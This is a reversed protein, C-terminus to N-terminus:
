SMRPKRNRTQPQVGLLASTITGILIMWILNNRQTADSVRLSLLPQFLFVAFLAASALTGIIGSTSGFKMSVFALTGLCVFPILMKAPSSWFVLTLAGAAALCLGVGLSCRYWDKMSPEGARVARTYRRIRKDQSAEPTIMLVEDLKGGIAEFGDMEFPEGRETVRREIEDLVLHFLSEADRDFWVIEEGETTDVFDPHSTNLAMSVIIARKLM